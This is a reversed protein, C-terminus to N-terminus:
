SAIRCALQPRIAQYGYLVDLRCPFADNNIDYQRVIRMSIGDMVQRSAFDVGKPLVLDATAFTFADRHFALLQPSAVYVGNTPGAGSAWAIAAGSAPLANVNQQAANVGTTAINIAPAIPLAVSAGGAVTTTTVVFQHLKNTLQKTEPHVRYVGAITFVTGAVITQGNTFGTLTLVSGSQNAGSVTAGSPNDGNTFTPMLPNQYWDFGATRGMKGERYQTSIEQSDQFLGKLADVIAVNADTTIHVSRKNDQPALADDLKGKAQLYTALLNPPTGPTGVLSNVSSFMSLADAEMNSAMVAMAPEIYRESFDDISLTLDTSTFDMDVGGQSTIKLTTQEDATNQPALQAGRRYTYRAPLRINLSSGVKAGNKAFQDDYDRNINGIFTLKNHLVMLAKRTIMTPTLFTNTNPIPM